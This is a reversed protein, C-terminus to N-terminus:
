MNGRTGIEVEYWSVQITVAHSLAQEAASLVSVPLRGCFFITEAWPKEVGSLSKLACCVISDFILKVVVHIVSVSPTFACSQSVANREKDIPKNFEKALM